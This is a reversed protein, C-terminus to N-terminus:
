FPYFPYAVQWDASFRFLIILLGWLFHSFGFDRGLFSPWRCCSFPFGCCCLFLFSFIPGLCIHNHALVRTHPTSPRWFVCFTGWTDDVCRNSNKKITRGHELWQWAQIQKPLGSFLCTGLLDLNTHGFCLVFVDDEALSPERAMAIPWFGRSYGRSTFM